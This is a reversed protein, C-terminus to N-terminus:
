AASYTAISRPSGRSEYGMRAGSRIHILVVELFPALREAATTFVVSMESGAAHTMFRM